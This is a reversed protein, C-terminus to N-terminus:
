EAVEMYQTKDGIFCGVTDVIFENAGYKATHGPRLYFDPVACRYSLLGEATMTELLVNELTVTGPGFSIAKYGVLTISQSRPGRDFRVSYFDARLLEERLSEVGGVIAAMDIVLEGNQRANIAALDDVTYPIVFSLYSKADGGRMRFQISKPATLVYDDLGDAGGTITAHYRYVALDRNQRLWASYNIGESENAFAIGDSIAPFFQAYRAAGVTVALGLVAPGVGRSYDVLKGIVGTFGLTSPAEALKDDGGFTTCAFGIAGTATDPKAGDDLALYGAPPSYTQEAAAFCSTFIDGVAYMSLCAAIVADITADDFHPNALTVPDASNLWAGNAGFFLMHNDLDLAFQLVDGVILGDFSNISNQGDHFKYNNAAGAWSELWGASTATTFNTGSDQDCIGWTSYISWTPSIADCVIEWYWKGKSKAWNAVVSHDYGTVICTVTRNGNSLSFDSHCKTPDWTFSM